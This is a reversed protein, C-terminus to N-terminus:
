ILMKKEIVRSSSNGIKNRRPISPTGGGTNSEKIEDTSLLPNGGSTIHKGGFVQSTMGDKNRELM